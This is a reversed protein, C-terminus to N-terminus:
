YKRATFTQGTTAGIISLAGTITMNAPTEYYDGAALKFSPQGVIATALSDIWLDGASNNQISYHYGSTDAAIITQATGGATITGSASSLTSIANQAVLETLIQSSYPDAAASKTLVWDISDGTQWGTSAQLLILALGAVNFDTFGNQVYYAPNKNLPNWTAGDDNSSLVNLQTATPNVLTASISLTDAGNTVITYNGAPNPISFYDTTADSTNREILVLKDYIKSSYPDAAASKTLQWAITDSMQWANAIISIYPYGSVAIESYGNPLERFDQAYQPYDIFTVGDASVIVYALTTSPSAFTCDLILTNSQWSDHINIIDPDAPTAIGSDTVVDSANREIATLLATQATQNAASADGGEESVIISTESGMARAYVNAAGRYEYIGHSLTSFDLTDQDPEADGFFLRCDAMVSGTLQIDIAGAGILVWAAGINFRTTAM